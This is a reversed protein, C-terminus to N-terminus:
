VHVFGQCKWININLISIMITASTCGTGAEDRAPVTRPSKHGEGSSTGASIMGMLGNSCRPRARRISIVFTFDKRVNGDLPKMSPETALSLFM